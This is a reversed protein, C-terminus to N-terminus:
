PYERYGGFELIRRVQVTGIGEKRRETLDEPRRSLHEVMVKAIDEESYSAPKLYGAEFEELPIPSTKHEVPSASM